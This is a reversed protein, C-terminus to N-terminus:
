NVYGYATIGIGHNCHTHSTSAIATVVVPTSVMPRHKYCHLYSPPFLTHRLGNRTRLRNQGQKLQFMSFLSFHHVHSVDVTEQEANNTRMLCISISTNSFHTLSKREKDTHLWHPAFAQTEGMPPSLRTHM